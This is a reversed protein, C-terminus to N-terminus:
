IWLQSLNFNNWKEKFLKKCLIKIEIANDFKKDEAQYIMTKLANYFGNLEDLTSCKGDFEAMVKTLIRVESNSLEFGTRKLSYAQFEAYLERRKEALGSKLIRSSENEEGQRYQLVVKDIATMECLKSCEIWFRFDEMGLCKDQFELRHHEVLDRRLMITSNAYVNRFLYMAKVYKPNYLAEYAPMILKGESNVIEHKGGLVSINPHEELFIVQQELREPMSIDDDDMIAIYKGRSNKLGQNRSYAIGRNVGNHIIRIRSDKITQIIEMTRDTPCDDILLLELNRYTQNLISSISIKIYKEANYVPMIVSVLPLQELSVKQSYQGLTLCNLDTEYFKCINCIQKNFLQILSQVGDSSYDISSLKRSIVTLDLEPLDNLELEFRRSSIVNTFGRNLLDTVIQDPEKNAVIMLTQNKNFVFDNIGICNLGPDAILVWDKKTRLEGWKQPDNDVICTVDIFHSKMNKYLRRGYAGACFICINELETNYMTNLKQKFKRIKELVEKTKLYEIQDKIDM